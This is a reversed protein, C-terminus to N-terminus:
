NLTGTKGCEPCKIKLPREESTVPINAKCKPCPVYGIIKEEKKEVPADEFDVTKEELEYVGDSEEHFIEGSAEPEVTDAEGLDLIEGSPSYVPGKIGEMSKEEFKIPYFRYSFDPFYDVTKKKDEAM